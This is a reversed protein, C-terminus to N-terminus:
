DELRNFNLRSPRTDILYSMRIFEGDVQDTPEESRAMANPSRPCVKPSILEVSALFVDVMGDFQEPFEMDEGNERLPNRLTPISEPIPSVSGSNKRM